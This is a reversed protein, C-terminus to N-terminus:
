FQYFNIEVQSFDKWNTSVIMRWKVPKVPKTQTKSELSGSKNKKKMRGM